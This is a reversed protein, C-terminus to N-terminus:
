SRRPVYLARRWGSILALYPSIAAPLVQSAVSPALWGFFSPGLLFERSSKGVVRPQNSAAFFAGLIRAVIIILVLALLLADPHRLTESFATVAPKSPEPARIHGTLERLVSHPFVRRYQRRTLAYLLLPKGSTRRISIIARRRSTPLTRISFAYFPRPRFIQMLSSGRRQLAFGDGPPSSRRSSPRTGPRAIRSRYELLAVAPRFLDSFAIVSPLILAWEAELGVFLADCRPWSVCFPWSRAGVCGHQQRTKRRWAPHVITLFPPKAKGESGFIECCM